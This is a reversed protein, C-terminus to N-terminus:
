IYKATFLITFLANKSTDLGNSDQSVINMTSLRSFKLNGNASPDISEIKQAMEKLLNKSTGIDICLARAMVAIPDAQLTLTKFNSHLAEFDLSLLTEELSDLLSLGIKIMINDFGAILMDLVCLSLEGPSSVIFCTTFWEITYSVATFETKKFHRYIRRNHKRLKKEFIRIYDLLSSYKPDFLIGVYRYKLLYAVITYVEREYPFHILLSAVIFNIGQCYGREYSIALLINKLSIYYATMINSNSKLLSLLSSRIITTTTESLEKNSKSSSSTAIEGHSTKSLDTAININTMDPFQLRLLKSNRAFLGYTRPVDKDVKIVEKEAIPLVKMEDYIAYYIDVYESPIFSLWIANPNTGYGAANNNAHNPFALQQLLLKENAPLPDAYMEPNNYLRNYVRMWIRSRCGLGPGIRPLATSITPTNESWM